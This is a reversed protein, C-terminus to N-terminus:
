SNKIERAAEEPSQPPRQEERDHKAVLEKDLHVHSKHIGEEPLSQPDTGVNVPHDPARNGDHEESKM